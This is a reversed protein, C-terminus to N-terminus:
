ADECGAINSGNPTNYTFGWKILRSFVELSDGSVTYTKGSMGGNADALREIELLGSVANLSSPRTLTTGSKVVPRNHLRRITWKSM